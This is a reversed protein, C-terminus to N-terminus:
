ALVSVFFGGMDIINGSGGDFTASVKCYGGAALSASVWVTHVFSFDYAAATKYYRTDSHSFLLVDSSNYFDYTLTVVSAAASTTLNGTTRLTIAQGENLWGMKLKSTSSDYVDSSSVGHPLHDYGGQNTGAADVLIQTKSTGISSQTSGNHGVDYWGLTSRILQTVTSKSTTSSEVIPILSAPGPTTNAPLESIKTDAM